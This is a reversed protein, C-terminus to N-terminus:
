INKEMRDIVAQQATVRAELEIIRQTYVNLVKSLGNVENKTESVETKVSDLLNVKILITQLLDSHSSNATAEM